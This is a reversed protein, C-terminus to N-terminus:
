FDPEDSRGVRVIPTRLRKRRTSTTRMSAGFFERYHSIRNLLTKILRHPRAPRRVRSGVPPGSRVWLALIVIAASGTLLAASMIWVMGFNLLVAGQVLGLTFFVLALVAFKIAMWISIRTERIRGFVLRREHDSMAAAGNAARALAVCGFILPISWLLLLITRM